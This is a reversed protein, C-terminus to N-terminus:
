KLIRHYIYKNDFYDLSGFYNIETVLKLYERASKGSAHGDVYAANAKNGHLTHIAYSTDAFDYGNNPAYDLCGSVLYSPTGNKTCSDALWLRKTHNKIQTLKISSRPSPDGKEHAYVQGYSTGHRTKTTAIMTASPCNQVGKKFKNKLGGPLYKLEELLSSWDCYSVGMYSNGFYSKPLYENYDDTYLLQAMMCQKLNNVCAIEKAKARAKNLAPLLMSALIAIIAIVVLLEILTFNRKTKM